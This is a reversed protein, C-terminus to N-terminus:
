SDEVPRTRDFRRGSVEDATVIVFHEHSGPAWPSVDLRKAEELSARDTLETAHGVLLVSWGSRGNMEVDDVEFAVPARMLAADLKTGPATRFVVANAVVRYNVPLIVPRDGVQLGVRGLERARLLALCEGPALKELGDPWTPDDENASGFDEPAGTM